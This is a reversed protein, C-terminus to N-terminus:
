YDKKWGIGVETSDASSRGQLTVSPFLEVEVRVATSEQTAGQEVGVYISDNIYKGAELTPTGAEDTGNNKNGEALNGEGSAGSTTRQDGKKDSDGVRLVDLGTKKRIATLPNFGTGGGSGTLERLSNALQLSEFRSLDSTRKGFLVQALVEDQPLPPRSELALVPKKATGSTRIIATIDPGEYTLELNIGPNIQSGGAFNLEGGTFAFPKSLLEFYGRVPKLAGTLSPEAASGTIRLKGQWESDMGMGRIFFYRPIAITMDLSPGSPLVTEQVKATAKGKANAQGKPAKGPIGPQGAKGSKGSPPTSRAPGAASTKEEVVLTQVSGGLGSALTVEGQEVMIDATLAPSALPGNAGFIGSLKVSLDDRHLPQLHQLQGRVALTPPKNAHPESLTAELAVTGGQEDAASLLARLAGAPTSHAELTINTLLLGLVTDQYRGGAIYATAATKPTDLTGSLALDLVARGTLTRDSIPVMQWLTALAGDWRFSAALATRSDPLPVGNPALRLPIQFNLNGEKQAAAASGLAGTGRLWIIGPVARVGAGSVASQGPNRDLRADVQLDLAPTSRSTGAAAALASTDSIRSTISFTGHPESGKTGCSAKANLTGGPLPSDTFMKFIAFPLDKLTAEVQMAAPSFAAEAVLSGAPTFAVNLGRVQIGDDMRITAPARLSLGAQADPAQLSFRSLTVAPTALDYQGQLAMLERGSAPRSAPASAAATKGANGRTKDQVKSQPPNQAKGQTAPRGTASQQLALSFTGTQGAGDVLASAASWAVPGASGRGTNLRLNVVPAHPLNRANVTGAVDRLSFADATSGPERLALSQLQLALTAAQQGGANDLKLDLSAPGGSLPVGTLAALTNWSQVDASLSGTVTNVQPRSGAKTQDGKPAPTDGAPSAPAAAGAPPAAFRGSIDATMSMGAGRLRLNAVSAAIGDASNAPISAKWGTSFSIAGGPSAGVAAKVSGALNAAISAASSDSAVPRSLATKTELSIAKFEGAQTTIAPSSATVTATLDALTGQATLELKAPGSLDARFPAVNAIDLQFRADVKGTPMGASSPASTDASAGASTDASTDTPATDPTFSGSGNATLIGADLKELRVTYPGTEGASLHASASLSPGLIAALAPAPWRMDDAQVQVSVEAPAAKPRTLNASLSIAGEPIGGPELGAFQTLITQWPAHDEAKLTVAAHTEGTDAHLSASAKASVGLGQLSLQQVTFLEGAQEADLSCAITLEEDNILAEANGQMTFIIKPAQASNKEAAKATVTLRRFGNGDARHLATDLSATLVGNALGASGSANLTLTDTDMHLVANEVRLAAVRIAVPLSLSVGTSETEPTEDVPSPPLLPPRLLVPNRLSIETVELTGGALASLALAVRLEGARLFVGEADALTANRVTLQQPLPGTFHEAKLTIGQAALVEALTEFVFRDASATRLWVLTGAVALVCFVVVGALTKCLVRAATRLPSKPRLANM